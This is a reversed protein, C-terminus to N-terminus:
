WIQGEKMGCFVAAVFLRCCTGIESVLAVVQNFCLGHNQLVRFGLILSLLLM